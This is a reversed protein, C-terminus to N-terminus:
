ARNGGPETALLEHLTDLVRDVEDLVKASGCRVSLVVHEGAATRLQWEQDLGTRDLELKTTAADAAAIAQSSRQQPRAALDGPTIRLYITYGDEGPVRRPAKGAQPGSDVLRKSIYLQHESLLNIAVTPDSALSRSLAAHIAQMRRALDPTDPPVSM